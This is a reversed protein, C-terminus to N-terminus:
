REPLNTADTGPQRDYGVDYKGAYALLESMIGARKETFGVWKRGASARTRRLHGLVLTRGPHGPALTRRLHGPVRGVSM